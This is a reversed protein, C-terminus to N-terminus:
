EGILDCNTEGCEPCSPEDLRDEPDEEIGFKRNCEECQYKIWEM